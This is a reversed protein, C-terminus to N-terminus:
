EDAEAWKEMFDEIEDKHLVQGDKTTLQYGSRHLFEIFALICVKAYLKM